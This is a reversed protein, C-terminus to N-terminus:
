KSFRGSSSKIFKINRFRLASWNEDLAVLRIGHFGCDNLSKWGHDRDIDSSIKNSTKKPYCFWLVGDCLLNHLAVPTLIEIESVSKVFIIIFNYPYRPDIERDIIVNGLENSLTVTFNDEANLVAIRDNGKYNLKEHLKQM